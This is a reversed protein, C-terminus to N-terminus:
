ITCLVCANFFYWLPLLTTVKSPPKPDTESQDLPRGTIVGSSSSVLKSRVSSRRGDAKSVAATAPQDGSVM